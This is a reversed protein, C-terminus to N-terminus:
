IVIMIKLFGAKVLDALSMSIRYEDVNRQLVDLAMHESELMEDLERVRLDKLEIFVEDPIGLASLLTITQRNLYASIFKSGRIVELVNHDSEFKHQSPRVQVQNEKVTTSQCLVGKYGAMRFQFASPITKLDLEYAIKKALSYSINGIGDSFTFGNKVIDPIEKIDNIPLRQIARTSSFCQGM